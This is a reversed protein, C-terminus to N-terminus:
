SWLFVSKKERKGEELYKKVHMIQKVYVSLYTHTHTNIWQHCFTVPLFLGGKHYDQKLLQLEQDLSSQASTIRKSLKTESRKLEDAQSRGARDLQTEFQKVRAELAGLRDALRSAVEFQVCFACM